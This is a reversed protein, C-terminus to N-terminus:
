SFIVPLWGIIFGLIGGLAMVLHLERRIVSLIIAEAKEPEFSNIQKEVLAELNIHQAVHEAAKELATSTMPAKEIEESLNKLNEEDSIYDVLGQKIGDYIKNEDLFAGALRGVNEKILKKIWQPGKEDFGDLLPLHKHIATVAEALGSKMFPSSALEKTLIEPTIVHQSVAEAIKKALRGQEKPIVGPTFPLQKGFIYVPRHPRFLMHIALWNTSYGIIAGIVPAVFLYIVLLV